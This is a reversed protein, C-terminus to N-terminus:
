QNQEHITPGQNSDLDDGDDADDLRENLTRAFM